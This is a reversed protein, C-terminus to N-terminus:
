NAQPRQKKKRFLKWYTLLKKDLIGYILPNASISGAVRLIINALYIFWINKKVIHYEEAIVSSYEWSRSMSCVLFIM